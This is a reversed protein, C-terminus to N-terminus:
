VERKGTGKLGPKQGIKTAERRQTKTTTKKKIAFHQTINCLKGRNKGSGVVKPIRTGVREERGGGCM